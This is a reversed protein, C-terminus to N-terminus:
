DPQEVAQRAREITERFVTRWMALPEGDDVALVARRLAQL